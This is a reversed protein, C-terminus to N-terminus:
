TNCLKCNLRDCFAKPSDGLFCVFLCCFCCCMFRLYLSDKDSASAVPVITSCMVLEVYFIHFIIRYTPEGFIRIRRLCRIDTLSYYICITTVQEPCVVGGTMHCSSYFGVAVMFQILLLLKDLVVYDVTLSHSCSQFNIERHQPPGDPSHLVARWCCCCQCCCCVSCKRTEQATVIVGSSWGLGSIM